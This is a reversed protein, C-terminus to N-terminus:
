SKEGRELRYQLYGMFFAPFGRAILHDCERMAEFARRHRTFFNGGLLVVFDNDTSKV